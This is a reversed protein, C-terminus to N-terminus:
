AAPRERRTSKSVKVSRKSVGANAAKKRLDSVIKKLDFGFEKAYAERAARVEEVIPDKWM